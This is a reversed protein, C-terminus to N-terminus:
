LPGCHWFTQKYYSVLLTLLFPSVTIPPHYAINHTTNVGPVSSEAVPTDRVARACLTWESAALGAQISINEASTVLLENGVHHLLMAEDLWVQVIDKLQM